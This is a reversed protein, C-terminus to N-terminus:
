EHPTATHSWLRDLAARREDRGLGRLDAVGHETVVVDVDHSPTTVPGALRDVLTRRGRHTAPLAMVSLGPGRAAAAAFDPHGGIMGAASGAVGEVNVQGDRDIELATNVAVLPGPAGSALRSVDHTYEVPRVVGHGSRGFRDAWDYLRPSGHLATASPTGRLLGRADLDVVPDTLLGSDVSVPVDLAAVVAASLRGPGFQIRAGAPVLSAVHGAIALDEPTPPPTEIPCPAGAPGGVEGLVTVEPLPPGADAHPASSSVVAAVPVGAEALGRMWSAEAGFRYGGPGRVVTALLLDPRLPGALLAPTASLPAPVRHVAGAEVLGRLGPGGVVTRIDVFAGPDLEPAPGPVWGLVLRVGGAWAAVRSLPAALAYPLGCADALAVRAGPRVLESLARELIRDLHEDRTQM